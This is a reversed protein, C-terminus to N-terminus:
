PNRDPQDAKAPQAPTAKGKSNAARADNATAAVPDGEGDEAAAGASPAGVSAPFYTPGPPQAAVLQWPLTFGRASVRM